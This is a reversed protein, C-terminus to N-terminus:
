LGPFHDLLICFFFIDPFHYLVSIVDFAIYIAGSQAAPFFPIVSIYVRVAAYIEVIVVSLEVYTDPHSSYLWFLLSTSLSHIVIHIVFFM